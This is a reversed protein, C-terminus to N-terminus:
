IRSGTPLRVVCQFVGPTDKTPENALKETIQDKRSAAVVKAVEEQEMQKRIEELKQEKEREEKHSAEIMENYQRDQEEKLLRDEFAKLEADSMAGSNDFNGGTNMNNSPGTLNNVNSITPNHPGANQNGPHGQQVPFYNPEQGHFGGGFGFPDNGGYSDNWSNGHMQQRLVWESRQQKKREFDNIFKKDDEM